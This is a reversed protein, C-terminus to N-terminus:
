ATKHGGREAGCASTGDAVAAIGKGHNDYRPRYVKNKVYKEHRNKM